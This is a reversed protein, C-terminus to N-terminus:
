HHLAKAGLFGSIYVIGRKLDARETAAADRRQGQRAAVLVHGFIKKAVAGRVERTSQVTGVWLEFSSLYSFCSLKRTRSVHPCAVQMEMNRPWDVVRLKKCKGEEAGKKEPTSGVELSSKRPLNYVQLRALATTLHAGLKLLHQAVLVTNAAAALIKAVVVRMEVDDFLEVV